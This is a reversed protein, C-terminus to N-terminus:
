ADKQQVLVNLYGYPIEIQNTELAKKVRTNIDNRFVETPTTPKYYATTGLELSSDRFALFYVQGYEPDGGNTAPHGPVSYPSDMIAQRVVQCAFGPDSAYSVCFRFDVSRTKTHYSMNKVRQSNMKSNPVIYIQTDLGSLVVHRLTMDKVIGAVGNELEIRDGIDFPKTTSIIIGCILDALVSQAAFGAIAALITTSQFLSQGFSRTYDNSMVFWMVALFVVVFRIIKEGFQTNFDKKRRQIRRFFHRTIRLIVFAMLVAIVADMALSIVRKLEPHESLYNLIDQM